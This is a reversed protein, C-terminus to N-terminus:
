GGSLLRDFRQLAALLGGVPREVFAVEAMPSIGSVQPLPRDGELIAKMRPLLVWQLWQEFALTDVCFPECSALAQASPASDSWLGAMRLEREILLLTDALEPVRADM